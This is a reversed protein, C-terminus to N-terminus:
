PAAALTHAPKYQEVLGAVVDRQESTLNGPILVTFRHATATYGDFGPETGGITFRGLAGSPSGHVAVAPAPKGAPSESLIAGGLGRMQWNEIM